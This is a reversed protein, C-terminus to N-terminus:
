AAGQEQPAAASQDVTGDSSGLELDTSPTPLRIPVLHTDHFLVQMNLDISAVTDNSFIPVASAIASRRRWVRPTPDM